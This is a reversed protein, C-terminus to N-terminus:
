YEASDRAAPLYVRWAKPRGPEDQFVIKGGYYEVLRNAMVLELGDDGGISNEGEGATSQGEECEIELCFLSQDSLDPEERRDVPRASIKLKMGDERGEFAAFLLDELIRSFHEPAMETLLPKHLDIVTQRNSQNMKKATDAVIEHIASGVEIKRPTSTEPRAYILFDSLLKDLRESDRLIIRMLKDRDNIGNKTLIQICGGLSALPNRIEHAMAAALEGISAMIRHRNMQAEMTKFETIDQFIMLKGIVESDTNVLPSLTYSIWLDKGGANKYPFARLGDDYDQEHDFLPFVRSLPGGTIAKADFGTTKEAARNFSTICGNLDLTLLGSDISQVVNRHFATLERIDRKKEALELHSRRAQESWYSSLFAILNFSLIHIAAHYFVDRQPLDSFIYGAIPPVTYGLWQIEILGGYLVSSLLAVLVGGRRYLLQSAIIIVLLYLFTFPSKIGGTIFILATVLVPDLAIQIGIVRNYRKYIKLLLGYVVTLLYLSAIFLYLPSFGAPIAASFEDQQSLVSIVMLVTAVVVRLSMLWLAQSLHSNREKM